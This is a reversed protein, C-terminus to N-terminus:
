KGNAVVSLSIVQKGAKFDFVLPQTGATGTAGAAKLGGLWIVKGDAQRTLKLEVSNFLVRQLDNLGTGLVVLEDVGILVPGPPIINSLTSTSEAGADKAAPIRLELSLGAPDQLTIYNYQKVEAPTLKILRVHDSSPSGYPALVKSDPSIVKFRNLHDGFVLFQARTADQELLLLKPTQGAFQFEALPLQAASWYRKDTFLTKVAVFPNARLLATPVIVSLTKGDPERTLPTDSYGFVHGGIVFIPRPVISDDPMEQLKISLKTNSEDLTELGHDVINLGHFNQLVDATFVLPTETGDRAVLAVPKTALDAIPAVFQIQRYQLRLAPSGEQLFSSGIRVYAGGLFRGQLSVLMQGNGLDEINQLTFSDPAQALPYNTIPWTQSYEHLSGPIVTKVLNRKRDYCRWYTRVHISGLQPSSMYTPFALQVFTQQMGERVYDAGLVPRFQWQFGARQPDAPQYTLALTDQDKVLYYTKTGHLFSAGIGVVQTVIGAGVSTSNDTIAAINYTKEQPLLALVAPPDPTPEGELPAQEIKEVEVEVVAVAHKYAKGPHIAIPFGITFRPKVQQTRGIFLDTLSGELLMRLNAIEYTLQMQESLIDAASVSYSSPMTTTSAPATVTPPSTAVSPLPPGQISLGFSSISQTAGTVSGLKGAIASQDLVQLSALRAEAASLMQQLLSDDYMKPTGVDIGRSLVERADIAQEQRRNVSDDRDAACGAAFYLGLFLLAMGCSVSRPSM